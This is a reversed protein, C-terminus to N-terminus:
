IKAYIRWQEIDKLDGGGEKAWEAYRSHFLVGDFLVDSGGIKLGVWGIADAIFRYMNKYFFVLRFPRSEVKNPIELARSDYSTSVVDHAVQLLLDAEFLEILGKEMLLYLTLVTAVYPWRVSKVREYDLSDSVIWSLLKLKIDLDRPINTQDGSHLDVLTPVEIHTPFQVPFSQQVYDSEHDLKFVFPFAYYRRRKLRHYLIIGASRLLIQLILEPLQQGLDKPRLDTFGLLVPYPQKYWIQYMFPHNLLIDLIPDNSPIPNSTIGNTRYFGLSQQFRTKMQEDHVGFAQNLVLHLDIPYPLGIPQQRVFKAVNYFKRSYQGLSSHFPLLEEFKVIDNGSLTAFLPMQAFSLELHEVLAPRNYEMTELTVIDIDRSSWYRWNGEYILFDSDDAIIALANNKRAFTALEQDCEKLISVSLTGHKKALYEMAYENVFSGIETAITEVDTGKDVADYIDIMKKYNANRRECWTKLKFSPVTGDVFFQLEVGLAKLKSFFHNIILYALYLRGGFLRSEADLRSLPVYLSMVDIVIIPSPLPKGETAAKYYERIENEINVKFCGDPVTQRIFTDLHRIGM